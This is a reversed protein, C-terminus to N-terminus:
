SEDDPSLGNMCSLLLIQPRLMTKCSSLVFFLSVGACTVMSALTQKRFEDVVVVVEVTLCKENKDTEVEVVETSAYIAVVADM